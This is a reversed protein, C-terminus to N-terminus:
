KLIFYIVVVIHSIIWLMSYDSLHHDVIEREVEITKGSDVGDDDLVIEIEKVKKANKNAINALKFDNVVYKTAFYYGILAIVIIVLKLLM